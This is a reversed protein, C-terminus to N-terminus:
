LLVETYQRIEKEVGMFMAYEMLQHLNKDELRFYGKIAAQFVQIDMKRKNKIIDCICREKDYCVVECGTYTKLKTVGMEYLEPRITHVIIGQVTLHKANYGRKVTVVPAMSERDALGHLYLATEHSFIIKKNRMQLIYLEDPWANNFLYLGHAVKEANKEKIFTLVQEKTAGARMGLEITLYNNNNSVLQTLEERMADGVKESSNYCIIAYFHIRLEIIGFLFLGPWRSWFCASKACEGSAAGPRVINM